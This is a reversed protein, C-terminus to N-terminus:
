HRECPTPAGGAMSRPRVTPKGLFSPPRAEPSASTPPYLKCLTEGSQLVGVVLLSYGNPAEKQQGWSTGALAKPINNRSSVREAVYGSHKNFSLSTDLYVGLINPCQALPLQSDEILIRPHTKAQHPDPSFPTVTSKPASILLSNDKLYAIIEELYSNVSDELDPIKVGTDWVTLDDAYCVRKVSETPRPMDAIYFSFLSPSLKSCQPVGTNVKRSTSKNCRFCTKAQRGRLYCTSTHIGLKSTNFQQNFKTALQKFSSFSIGNFTIAENEAECKARGDIGKITRGLKTVDTKQNLTEVFDRWQKGKTHTSATRSTM